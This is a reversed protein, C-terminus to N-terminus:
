RVSLFFFDIHPYHVPLSFLKGIRTFLVFLSILKNEIQTFIEKDIKKYMFFNRSFFDSLWIRRGFSGLTLAFYFDSVGGGTGRQTSVGDLFFGAM